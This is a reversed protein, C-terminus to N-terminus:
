YVRTERSLTYRAEWDGCEARGACCACCTVWANSTCLPLGGWHRATSCPKVTRVVIGRWSLVRAPATLTAASHTAITSQEACATTATGTLMLVRLAMAFTPVNLANQGSHVAWSHRQWRKGLALMCHVATSGLLASTHSASARGLPRAGEVHVLVLELALGM